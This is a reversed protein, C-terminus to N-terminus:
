RLDKKKSPIWMVLTRIFTTNALRGHRTGPLDGSRTLPAGAAGAGTQATRRFDQFQLNKPLLAATGVLGRYKALTSPWWDRGIFDNTFRPADPLKAPQTVLCTDLAYKVDPWLPDAGRM